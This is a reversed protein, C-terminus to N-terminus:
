LFYSAILLQHVVYLHSFSHSSFGFEIYFAAVGFVVRVVDTLGLQHIPFARASSFRGPIFALIRCGRTVFKKV